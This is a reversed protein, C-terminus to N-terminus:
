AGESEGRAPIAEGRRLARLAANLMEEVSISMICKRENVVCEELNCLSCEVKHYVVQHGEGTPFWHGRRIRSAFVIACPVGYAAAMHMQGSDPGLFLDARRLVAATERPPLGCLNVVPGRWSASAYAAAASDEKAGLLVLGHEPLEGTLRTLLGRWNEQGWDKAQMKTGPGCAILRRGELPTLLARAREEDEVTLRLDWNARDDLDVAGLRERLCRALRAGEHEWLDTAPDYLPEALDGIPLGIVEGVGCLRFFWRDRQVTNRIGMLYIVVQPRFQVINWWLRLLDGISRTRWPYDMYGHVLGSEKLVTFATPANSHTPMNTLLRREANPFSREVLHLAPLAVVTDGLSGLRYILVRKVM